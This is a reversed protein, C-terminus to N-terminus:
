LAGWSAGAEHRSRGHPSAALVVGCRVHQRAGRSNLFREQVEFKGFFAVALVTSSAQGTTWIEILGFFILSFSAHPAATPSIHGFSFLYEFITEMSPRSCTFSERAPNRRHYLEVRSAYKVEPSDQMSTAISM